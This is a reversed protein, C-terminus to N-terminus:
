RAGGSLDYVFKGSRMAEAIAKENAEYESMTMRQVDSEKFTKQVGTEPESSGRKTVVAKAAEKSSTKPTSLTGKYASIAWIVDEADGEYILNQVKSSQREAWNHFEDSNTIEEFDPHAKRIQAEERMRTLEQKVTDVEERKPASLSVQKDAVARIIAAANPNAKMWTEAEEETPLGASAEKSALKAVQDKLEKLEDAQKQSHRRLDSYRKKFSEEEKDLVPPTEKTELVEEEKEEEKPSVGAERELEAIEEELSTVSRPAIYTM